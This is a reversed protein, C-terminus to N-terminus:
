RRCAGAPSSRSRSRRRPRLQQQGVLRRRREVDGDLLLDEGQQQLELCSFPIAIIRTECSRPTIAWFQSATATIYAPRITSAPEARRDHARGRWGTCARRQELRHRRRSTVSSRGAPASGRGAASGRRAQRRTAREPRAARVAAIGAGLDRHREVRSRSSCPEAQGNTSAAAHRGRRAAARADVPQGLRKASLRETPRCARAAARRGDSVASSSTSEADRRALREPDDALRAAALRGQRAAEDPEYSGSAPETPRRRGRRARRRRPGLQARQAALDLHDVLVRVRESLGRRRDAGRDGLRSRTWPSISRPRPPPAVGGLQEVPDPERRSRRAAERM